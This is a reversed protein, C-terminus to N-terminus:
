QCWCGRQQNNSFIGSPARKGMYAVAV